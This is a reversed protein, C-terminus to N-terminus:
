LIHVHKAAQHLTHVHAGAHLVHTSARTCEQRGAQACMVCQHMDHQTEWGRGIDPSSLLRAPQGFSRQSLTKVSTSLSPSAIISSPAGSL